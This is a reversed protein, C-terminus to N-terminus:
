KIALLEQQIRGSRLDSPRWVAWDAAARRLKDGWREQEATLKGHETKLERYLLGRGGCLVLDPWGKNSRRSDYTHYWAIGLARCFQTVAAQLEQESENVPRPPM